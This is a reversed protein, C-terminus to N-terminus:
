KNDNKTEIIDNKRIIEDVINEINEEVEKSNKFIVLYGNQIIKEIHRTRKIKSLNIKSVLGHFTRYITRAPNRSNFGVILEIKESNVLESQALNFIKTPINEMREKIFLIKIGKIIKINFKEPNNKIFSSVEIISKIENVKAEFIKGVMYYIINKGPFDSALLNLLGFETELLEEMWYFDSKNKLVPLGKTDQIDIRKMMKKIKVHELLSDNKYFHEMLMSFSSKQEEIPIQHHDFNSNEPEYVGGVDVIFVKPDKYEKESIEDESVVEKIESINYHNLILGVDKLDDVHYPAKHKIVKVYEKDKPNELNLFIKNKKLMEVLNKTEVKLKEENTM